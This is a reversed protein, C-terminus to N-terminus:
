IATTQKRFWDDFGSDSGFKELWIAKTKGYAEMIEKIVICGEEATMNILQKPEPQEQRALTKLAEDYLFGEGTGDAVERTHKKNLGALEHFAKGGKTYLYSKEWLKYIACDKYVYVPRDVEFYKRGEPQNWPNKIKTKM